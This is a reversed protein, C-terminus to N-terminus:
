QYNLMEKISTWYKYLIQEPTTLDEVLKDLRKDTKNEKCVKLLEDPSLFYDDLIQHWIKNKIEHLAPFHDVEVEKATSLETETLHKSCIKCIWNQSGALLWRFEELNLEHHQLM